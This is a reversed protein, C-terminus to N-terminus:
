RDKKTMHWEIHDDMRGDLKEVKSEINKLVSLSEGHQSSNRRDLRHLSWMLPGGILAVLVPAILAEM